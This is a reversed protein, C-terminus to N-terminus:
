VLGLLSLSFAEFCPNKVHFFVFLANSAAAAASAASAASAAAAAAAAAAATALAVARLLVGGVVGEAWGLPLRSCYGAGVKPSIAHTRLGALWAQAAAQATVHAAAVLAAWAQVLRALGAWGEEFGDRAAGGGAEPPKAKIHWTAAHAYRLVVAAWAARRVQEQVAHLAARECRTAAV